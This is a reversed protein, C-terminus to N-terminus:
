AVAIAEFSLAIQLLPTYLAAQKTMLPLGSLVFMHLTAFVGLMLFSIGIDYQNLSVAEFITTNTCDTPSVPIQAINVYLGTTAYLHHAVIYAASTFCRILGLFVLQHKFLKQESSGHKITELDPEMGLGRM